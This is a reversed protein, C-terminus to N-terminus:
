AAHKKQQMLLSGIKEILLWFTSAGFAILLTKLTVSKLTMNQTLQQLANGPEFSPLSGPYYAFLVYIVGAVAIAAIIWFERPDATRLKKSKYAPQKSIQAMVQATFDAPVNEKAAERM